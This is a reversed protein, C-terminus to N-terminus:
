PQSNHYKSFYGRGNQENCIRKISEKLSYKCYALEQDSAEQEYELNGFIKNVYGTIHALMKFVYQFGPVLILKKGSEEALLKVLESTSVIERNQPLFIGNLRREAVIKIFECLNEIYIMSRQNRIKPFIPSVKALKLLKPFNGKANKGYVMPARIIVIQFEDSQVQLIANEGQLKSDGYFNAPTPDTQKSIIKPQGIPSSEGYVIASSMYIFQKVGDEKAKEVVQRTLDRNVEYYRNQEETTVHSIDSHAIGAVHLIVDYEAWSTNEWGSERLSCKQIDFSNKAYEAFSNGIYSNKGTILIKM